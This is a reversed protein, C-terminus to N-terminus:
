IGNFRFYFRNQILFSLSYIYLGKVCISIYEDLMIQVDYMTCHSTILKLFSCYFPFHLKFFFVFAIQSFVDLFQFIFTGDLFHINKIQNYIATIDQRYEGYVCIECLNLAIFSMNKCFNAYNYFM